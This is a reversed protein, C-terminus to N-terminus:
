TTRLYEYEKLRVSCSCISDLFRVEETRSDQTSSVILYEPNTDDIVITANHEELIEQIKELLTQM